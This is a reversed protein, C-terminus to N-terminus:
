HILEGCHPCKHYKSKALLIGRAMNPIKSIHGKKHLAAVREFATVRSIGLHKSIEKITPSYGLEDVHAQIMKLTITQKPTLPMKVM